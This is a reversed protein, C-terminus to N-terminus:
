IKIESMKVHEKQAGSYNGGKGGGGGGGERRYQGGLFLLFNQGRRGVGTTRHSVLAVHFYVTPM